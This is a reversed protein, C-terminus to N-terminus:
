VIRREEGLVIFHGLQYLYNDSPQTLFFICMITMRGNAKTNDNVVVM